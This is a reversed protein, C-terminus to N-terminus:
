YVSRVLSLRGGWWTQDHHLCFDASWLPDFDRQEYSSVTAWTVLNVASVPEPVRHIVAFIFIITPLASHVCRHLWFQPELECSHSCLSCVGRKLGTVYKLCSRVPQRNTHIHFKSVHCEPNQTHTHTHTHPCIRVLDSGARNRTLAFM